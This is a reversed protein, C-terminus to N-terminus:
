LRTTTSVYTDLRAMLVTCINGWEMGIQRFRQGLVLLFYEKPNLCLDSALRAGGSPADQDRAIYRELEQESGFWTDVNCYAKWCDESKGVIMFSIQADYCILEQASGVDTELPEIMSIYERVGRTDPGAGAKRLVVYSMHFEFVFAYKPNVHRPWDIGKGSSHPTQLALFEIEGAVHCQLYRRLSTQYIEEDRIAIAAAYSPTM